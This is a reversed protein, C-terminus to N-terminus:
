SIRRCTTASDFLRPRHIACSIRMKPLSHNKVVIYPNVSARALAQAPLPRGRRAARSRRRFLRARRTSSPRRRLNSEFPITLLRESVARRWSNPGQWQRRTAQIKGRGAFSERPEGSRCPKPPHDKSPPPLALVRRRKVVPLLPRSSVPKTVINQIAYIFHHQSPSRIWSRERVL